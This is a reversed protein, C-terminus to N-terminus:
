RWRPRPQFSARRCRRRGVTVSRCGRPRPRRGRQDRATWGAWDAPGRGPAGGAGARECHAPTCRPHGAREDRVLKRDVGPRRRGFLAQAAADAAADAATNAATDASVRIAFSGAAVPPSSCLNDRAVLRALHVMFNAVAVVGFNNTCNGGRIGLLMCSGRARRAFEGVRRSERALELGGRESNGRHQLAFHAFALGRGSRRLAIVMRDAAVIIGVVSPAAAGAGTGATTAATSQRLRIRRRERAPSGGCVRTCRKRVLIKDNQVL